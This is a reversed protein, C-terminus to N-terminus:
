GLNADAIADAASKLAVFETTLKALDAKALKEAADSTGYGEVTNIVDAYDNALAALAVSASSAEGKTQVLRQRQQRIVSAINDLGAKVESYSAM